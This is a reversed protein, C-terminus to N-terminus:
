SFLTKFIVTPLLSLTSFRQRWRRRRSEEEQKQKLTVLLFEHHREYIFSTCLWFRSLLGISDSGVSKNTETDRANVLTM